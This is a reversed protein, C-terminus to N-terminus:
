PTRACRIGANGDRTGPALSDRYATLLRNASSIVGGGRRVQNTAPTLNACDFCPDVYAADWDLIWESVNGALDSHGWTGDGAPSYTGVAVPGATGCGTYNALTCAITASGPPYAVSWPYAKQAPGGTAANNWEAESPLFGGDWICFAYAEYWTPESLALNEGAGAAETWTADAVSTLNTTWAALTTAFTANWASTWGSEYGGGTALLGHGGNLHTHIGSGNTPRWGGVIAAVFPRFRGVTVEYRDLRFGSVSAPNATSEYNASIGDYSRYYTETPIEISSCCSDGTHGCVAQGAAGAACSAPMVCTGASCSGSGDCSLGSRASTWGVTGSAPQCSQCANSPNPANEAYTMGGIVCENVRGTDAAADSESSSSSATSSASSSGMSSLQTSSSFSHSSSSSGSRSGTDHKESADSGAEAPTLDISGIGGILQCASAALLAATVGLGAWASLRRSSRRM